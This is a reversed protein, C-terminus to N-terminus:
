IQHNKELHKVLNSAMGISAATAWAFSFLGSFAILSPILRWGFPLNVTFNGVTTFFSGSFLLADTWHTVFEFITLAFVWIFLSSLICVVLLM